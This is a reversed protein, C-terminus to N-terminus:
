KWRGRCLKDSIEITSINLLQCPAGEGVHIPRGGRRHLYHPWSMGLDYVGTCPYNDPITQAANLRKCGSCGRARITSAVSVSDKRPDTLILNNIRIMGQVPGYFYIKM